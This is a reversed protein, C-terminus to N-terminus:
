TSEDSAYMKARDALDELAAMVEDVDEPRQGAPVDALASTTRDLTTLAAENQALLQEIRAMQGTRLEARKALTERERRTADSEADDRDLEALRRRIYGDDISSVSDNAVAVEHLNALASEYVQQSTSLYRTYTLENRALRRDLVKILAARKQRLAVLQEFPQSDSLDSLETALAETLLEDGAHANAAFQRASLVGTASMALPWAAVGLAVVVGLAVLMGTAPDFANVYVLSLLALLAGAIWTPPYTLVARWWSQPGSTTM